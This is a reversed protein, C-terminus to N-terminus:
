ALIIEISLIIVIVLLLKVLGARKVVYQDAERCVHQHHVGVTSISLSAFLGAFISM